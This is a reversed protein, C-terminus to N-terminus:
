KVEWVVLGADKAVKIMNKTESGGPFAVLNPEGPVALQKAVELMFLNRKPEAFRGHRQWLAPVEVCWVGRAEAWARATRDAGDAGGQVLLDVPDKVSDLTKFVKGRDAYDRGGCVLLVM